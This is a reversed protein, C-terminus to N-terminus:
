VIQLLLCAHPWNISVGDLEWSFSSDGYKLYEGRDDALIHEAALRKFLCFFQEKDAISKFRPHVEKAAFVEEQTYKEPNIKGSDILIKQMLPLLARQENVDLHRGNSM